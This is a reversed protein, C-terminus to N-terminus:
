WEVFPIFVSWQGAMGDPKRKSSEPLGSLSILVYIVLQNGVASGAYPCPLCDEKYIVVYSGYQRIIGYGAALM